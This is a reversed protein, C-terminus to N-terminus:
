YTTRVSGCAGPRPDGRLAQHRNMLLFRGRLSGHATNNPDLADGAVCAGFTQLRLRILRSPIFGADTQRSCAHAGRGRMASGAM